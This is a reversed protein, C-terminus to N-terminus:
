IIFIKCDLFTYKTNNIDNLIPMIYLIRRRLYLSYFRLQWISGRKEKKKRKWKFTSVFIIRIKLLTLNNMAKDTQMNAVYNFM